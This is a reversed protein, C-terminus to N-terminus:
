VLYGSLETLNQKSQHQTQRKVADMFIVRRLNATHAYPALM